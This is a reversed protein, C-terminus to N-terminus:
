LGSWANAFLSLSDGDLKESCNEYDSPIRYIINKNRVRSMAGVLAFGSDASLLQIDTLSLLYVDRASQLMALRDRTIKVTCDGNEPLTESFNSGASGVEEVAESKDRPLLFIEKGYRKLMSAQVKSATTVLLIIVKINRPKFYALLSDLCQVHLPAESIFRNRVQIGIRIIQTFNVHMSESDLSMFEKDRRIRNKNKMHDVNIGKNFQLGAKLLTQKTELCVGTCVDDRMKFLFNFLCPFTTERTLGWSTLTAAHTPNDFINYTYGRNTVVFIVDEQINNIEDFMNSINANIRQMHHTSYIQNDNPFVTTKQPNCQRHIHHPPLLCSYLTSNLIRCTWNFYRPSYAFEISRQNCLRLNDIHLILFSRKSLLSVLFLSVYGLMIDALGQEVPMAIIYKGKVSKAMSEKLISTYQTQWESGCSQHLANVWSLYVPVLFVLNFSMFLM